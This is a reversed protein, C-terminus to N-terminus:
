EVYERIQDWGQQETDIVTGYQRALEQRLSQLLVPLVSQDSVQLSQAGPMAQVGVCWVNLDESYPTLQNVVEAPTRATVLFVVQGRQLAARVTWTPPRGETRVFDDHHYLVRNVERRPVDLARAVQLASQPQQQLSLHRLIRDYNPDVAM